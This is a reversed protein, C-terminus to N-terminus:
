TRNAEHPRRIGFCLGVLIVVLPYALVSIPMVSLSAALTPQPIMFIAQILWQAFYYVSILSAFLAMEGAFPIGPGPYVRRRLYETAIVTLAAGLGPPRQLLFDALLATMAILWVPLLDPRRLVWACSLCFLLDPGPWGMGDGQLPMLRGLVVIASLMVYLTAGIAIKVVSSSGM